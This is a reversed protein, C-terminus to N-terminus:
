LKKPNDIKTGQFKKHIRVTTCNQKIKGNKDKVDLCVRKYRKEQEETNANAILLNDDNVLKSNSACGTTLLLLFVLTVTKM